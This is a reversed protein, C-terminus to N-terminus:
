RLLGAALILLSVAVGSAWVALVVDTTQWARPAPSALRSAFSAATPEPLNAELVIVGSVPKIDWEPILPRILPTICACVVGTAVIAHRLAASRRRLVWALMLASGLVLSTQIVGNAIIVTTM